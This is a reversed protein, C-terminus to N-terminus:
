NMIIEIPLNVAFRLDEANELSTEDGDDYYWKITLKSNLSIAKLATLIDVVKRLSSSNYYEFNFVFDTTPNCEDKYLTLWDLIPKYFKDTDEPLSRGSIIFLGSEKDFVVRPTTETSEVYLKELM